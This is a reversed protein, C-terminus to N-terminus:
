AKYVQSGEKWGLWRWIGSSSSRKREEILRVIQELQGPLLVGQLIELPYVDQTKESLIAAHPETTAKTGRLLQLTPLARRGGKVWYKYTESYAVDLDAGHRVFLEAVQFVEFSRSKFDTQRQRCMGLFATWVTEQQLRSPSSNLGKSVQKGFSVFV